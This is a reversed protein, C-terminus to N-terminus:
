LTLELNTSDVLQLDGTGVLQLTDFPTYDILLYGVTQAPKIRLIMDRFEKKRIKEVTARDGFNVGGIFFTARQNVDSGVIFSSERDSDIYNAIFTNNIGRQGFMMEGFNPNGFYANGPNVINYGGSGDQFRNEHVYVDFGVARLQGQLYLYHQRAPIDGPYKIKREIILKRESITLANGNVLGLASEWRIADESTFGDNDPLIADLLKIIKNQAESESVALGEHFKEFVGYKRMWWARGRPYLQKTLKLIKELLMM